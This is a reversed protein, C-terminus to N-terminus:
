KVNYYGIIEKLNFEEMIISKRNCYNELMVSHDKCRTILLDPLSYINYNHIFNQRDRRLWELDWVYFVIKSKNRNILNAAMETNYLNTTILLGDFNILENLCLTGCKIPKMPASFTEFFVITNHNQIKNIENIIFFNAQSSSTHSLVTGINM